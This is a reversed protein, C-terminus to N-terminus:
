LSLELDGVGWHRLARTTETRYLYSKLKSSILAKVFWRTFNTKLRGRNFRTSWSWTLTFIHIERHAHTHTHAHVHMCTCTHVHTYIHRETHIQRHTHRYSVLVHKTKNAKTIQTLENIMAQLWQLCLWQSATDEPAGKRGGPGCVYEELSVSWLIFFIVCTGFHGNMFSIYSPLDFLFQQCSLFLVNLFCKFCKLGTQLKHTKTM